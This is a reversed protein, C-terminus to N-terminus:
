PRPAGSAIVVLSANPCGVHYNADDRLLTVVVMRETTGREGQHALPIAMAAAGAPITITGSLAEYDRGAEATGGVAHRVIVDSARIALAGGKLYVGEGPATQGAITVHPAAVVIQKGGLDIIGSVAFVVIRNPRSVADALSGPGSAKLNTVVYVSGHRGGVTYKGAGEAGPFAPIPPPTDALATAVAAAIIVSAVVHLRCRNPCM